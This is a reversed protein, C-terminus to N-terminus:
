ASKGEKDRPEPRTRDEHRHVFQRVKVKIIEALAVAGTLILVCATAILALQVAAWEQGEALFAAAGSLAGV